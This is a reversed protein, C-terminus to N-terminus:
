VSGGFERVPMGGIEEANKGVLVGSFDIDFLDKRVIGGNKHPVSKSVQIAPFLIHASIPRGGIFLQQFVPHIEHSFVLKGDVPNVAFYAHGNHFSYLYFVGVPNQQDFGFVGFLCETVEFVQGSGVGFFMVVRYVKFVVAVAFYYLQRSCFPRFKEQAVKKTTKFIRVDRHIVLVNYYSVAQISHLLEHM